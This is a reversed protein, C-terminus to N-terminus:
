FEGSDKIAFRLSSSGLLPPFSYGLHWGHVKIRKGANEAHNNGEYQEYDDIPGWHVLVLMHVEETGELFTFRLLVGPGCSAPWLGTSDANPPSTRSQVKCRTEGKKKTESYDRLGLGFVIENVLRRLPSNTIEFM